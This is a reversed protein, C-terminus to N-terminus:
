DESGNNIRLLLAKLHARKEEDTPDLPLLVDSFYLPRRLEDFVEFAHSRLAALAAARDVARAAEDRARELEDELAELDFPTQGLDDNM